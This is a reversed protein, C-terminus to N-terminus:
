TVTAYVSKGEGYYSDYVHEYVRRLKDDFTKGTYKDPLGKNFTDRITVLVQARSQQRKRWDLVLKEQNLTALLDRAVKKVQNKEKTTLEMEPKTLIDFVALEEESLRESISRKEEESLQKAFATLRKFFLDINVAGANYEDIMKQFRELYDGRSRNMRVLAKLKSAVMARLREAETHRKGKEFKEKLADLDVQSLDVLGRRYEAISERIVYSEAAVSKDLLDEVAGMVASIDPDPALARIKEVIIALAARVSTFENARQDPLIAKFLKLVDAALSMFRRKSEDAAVIAEVAADLLKVREFGSAAQIGGLNVGREVCFEEV